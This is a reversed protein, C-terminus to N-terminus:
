LHARGGGPHTQHSLAFPSANHRECDLNLDIPKGQGQGLNSEQPIPIGLVAGSDLGRQLCHNVSPNRM